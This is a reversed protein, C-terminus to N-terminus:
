WDASRYFVIALKGKELLSDLSRREGTQDVLTFDPAKQGVALGVESPPSDAHLSSVIGLGLITLGVVLTSRFSTLQM